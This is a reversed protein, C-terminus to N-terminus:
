RPLPSSGTIKGRMEAGNWDVDAGIIKDRIKLDPGIIYTEPLKFTQYLNEAISKDADRAILVNDTTEPAYKKIFRTVSADNDDQSLFIFVTSNRTSEALAVMAPFEVVCPACWSAWFNLVIVKNKFDELSHDRGKIDKFVFDPVKQQLLPAATKDKPTSLSAGSFDLYFTCLAAVVLLVALVLINRTM